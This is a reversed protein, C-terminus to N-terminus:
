SRQAEWDARLSEENWSHRGAQTGFFPDWHSDLVEVDEAGSMLSRWGRAGPMRTNRGEVRPKSAQIAQAYRDSKAKVDDISGMHSPDICLYFSGGVTTTEAGGALIDTLSPVEPTIIGIPNIISQLAEGFLNMMYLRPEHLNQFCSQDYVRGYGEVPRAYPALDDGLEGTDPDIVSNPKTKTGQLVAQATDADYWECLKTSMWVPPEDGGPAIGDWPSVSITNSMGGLPSCMPVSNNSTLALCDQEYALWAYAGFSGADNHNAGFVISIGHEKAKAIALDAMKTLAWYGSTGKGDLVAWTPGEGVVEPTATIDLLGKQFAVDIAEYVGLGQNLKGQRMGILLADAVADGHEESAGNAMWVRKLCYHMFDANVTRTKETM